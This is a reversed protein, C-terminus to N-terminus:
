DITAALCAAIAHVDSVRWSEGALGEELSLWRVEHGEPSTLEPSRAVGHLAADFHMTCGRWQGAEGLQFRRGWWYPSWAVDTLGVEEAIERAAVQPVSTDGPDVHGGPQSWKDRVPHWLVAVEGTQPHTVFASVTFHQSNASRDIACSGDRLAALTANTEDTTSPAGVVPRPALDAAWLQPSFEESGTIGSTPSIM